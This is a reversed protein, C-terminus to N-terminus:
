ILSVSLEVLGLGFGFRVRSAPPSWGRPSRVRRSSYPSSHVPRAPSGFVLEGVDPSVFRLGALAARQPLASGTASSV